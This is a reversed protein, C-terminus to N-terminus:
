SGLVSKRLRRRDRGFISAASQRSLGLDLIMAQWVEKRALDAHPERVHATISVPPVSHKKAATYVLKRIQVALRWTMKTKKPRAM